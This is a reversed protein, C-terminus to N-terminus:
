ASKAGFLEDCSIGGKPPDVINQGNAAIIEVQGGPFVRVAGVVMGAAQAAEIANRILASTTRTQTM